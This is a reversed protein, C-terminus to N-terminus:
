DKTLRLTRPSEKGLWEPHQITSDFATTTKFLEYEGDTAASAIDFSNM